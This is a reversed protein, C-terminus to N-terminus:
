GDLGVHVDDHVRGVRVLVDARPHAVVIEDLGAARALAQVLEGFLHHLQASTSDSVPLARRAGEREPASTRWSLTPTLPEIGRALHPGGEGAGGARGGGGPPPSTSCADLRM